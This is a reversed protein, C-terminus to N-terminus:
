NTPVFADSFFRRRDLGNQILVAKASEIMESSGCAYVQADKLNLINRLLVDQVYGREGRWQNSPRSLVPIFKFNPITNLEIPNWYLDQDYRAGYFVWINKSTFDNANQNVWELIAKVPAIGTGTALFIINKNELNRLFFSGLPGEVRLLDDIKADEFWYKSMLGAEYKKIFFTLVNENSIANAISYSRRLEGKSLNVYQGPNYLLTANPPFRLEVYLADETLRTITSIKAPVNKKEFLVVDGLDEVDISVDTIPISNCALRYGNQREMKTLVLDDLKDRTEGSDLKVICSKCRAILCSHELAIDHSKAAEFITSNEVCLFSKGNSLSVKAM